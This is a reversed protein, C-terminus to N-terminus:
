SLTATLPRLLASLLCGDTSPRDILRLSAARLDALNVGHSALGWAVAAPDTPVGALLAAADHADDAQIAMRLIAATIPFDVSASLSASVLSGDADWIAEADIGAESLREALIRELRRDGDTCAQLYATITAATTM